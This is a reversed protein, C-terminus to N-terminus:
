CQKQPSLVTLARSDMFFHLNNHLNGEKTQCFNIEKKIKELLDILDPM